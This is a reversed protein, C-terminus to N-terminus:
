GNGKGKKPKDDKEPEAGGGISKDLGAQDQASLFDDSHMPHQGTNGGSGGAPPEAPATTEAAQTEVEEEEPEDEHSKSRKAM